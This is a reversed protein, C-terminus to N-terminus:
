CVWRVTTAADVIVVDYSTIGVEEAAVTGELEGVMDMLFVGITNNHV